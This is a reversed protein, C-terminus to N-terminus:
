LDYGSLVRKITAYKQRFNVIIGLRKESVALYRKMQFYDEKTIIKKAKFDIVIKDEVIFDPVNRRGRENKFTPELPFERKYIISERKLLDEFYDAYSKESRFRGLANHTKFILGNIIYSLEPYIVKDNKIQPIRM